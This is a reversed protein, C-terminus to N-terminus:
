PITFRYPYFYLKAPRHNPAESITYYGSEDPAFCLAEGQPEEKYPLFSPFRDLAQAVSQGKGRPFYFIQLYNKLIIHRGSPAIDGATIETLPLEELFQATGIQLTDQPFPLRYLHVRNERKSIVFLDKSVPDCLLTEADRAGDPLRFRIAAFRDILLRGKSKLVQVDPEALRYIVKFDRRARNDGIDGIYLYDTHPQPGPGLAIDEWDVAQVGKLLVQGVTQGSSDIAFIRAKDGSDNHVWFIKSFKRSAAIGSIEDLEPDSVLVARVDDLDSNTASASKRDASCHFLTGFAFLAVVFIPFRM